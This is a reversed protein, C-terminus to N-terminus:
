KTVSEIAGAAVDRLVEVDQLGKTMVHLGYAVAALMRAATRLDLDPRLEDREKGKLLLDLLTNELREYSATVVEQIRRAIRQDQPKLSVATNVILCGTPGNQELSADILHNFYKNLTTPVSKGERLIALRPKGVFSFYYSLVEEFLDEKSKFAQYFSSNSIELADLLDQLSTRDYGKEWFLQMAAELAVERDFERPRGRPRTM